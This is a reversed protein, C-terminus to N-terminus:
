KATRNRVFYKWVLVRVGNATYQTSAPIALRSHSVNRQRRWTAAPPRTSSRQSSCQAPHPSRAVTVASGLGDLTMWWVRLGM